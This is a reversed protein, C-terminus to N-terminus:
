LDEVKAHTRLRADLERRLREQKIQRMQVRLGSYVEGFTPMRAPTHANLRIITYAGDVQVLDSIQGIQLKSAAQVIAPPLQAVDVARHDGMMVRYDDESIKEALVGFEEYTKTAKAQRLDDEARAKMQVWQVMTPQPPVPQKPTPRVPPMITITQLSYTEPLKFQEPHKEYYARAEARSVVSKDAVEEKLLDEILLSRAIKTRMVQLSDSAEAKLYERFKEESPFQGRFEKEAKALRAPAITMKRREAEQYVLEEFEIMKLAGRRIDAEMAKPFGGNHQRAYPFIAYMERLLDRETLVTGNVRAVPRALTALENAGSATPAVTAAHPARTQGHAPLAAALLLGSALLLTVALIRALTVTNRNM